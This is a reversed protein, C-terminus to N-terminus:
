PSKEIIGPTGAARKALRQAEDWNVPAKPRESTAAVLQEVWPTYSRVPSEGSADPPHAEMYLKGNQWGFKYPENVITVPTGADVMAFLAAIDEPFLRLCGHSVRLGIGAPKNTGHLLYAPFGLYLAHQGLPNDPGAPVVQPLPDGNAAHEARISEPPTWTPHAKKGVITTHGLPTGWGERGIGLPYTFIKGAYRSSEPPYYYLRMEALNIVIGRRPADPLVYQTPIVMATGEGPLWPDVEPNALRLENFGVNYRRALAVFTDEYETKIHTPAGIIDDGKPPREYVEAQAFGALMTLATLLALRLFM